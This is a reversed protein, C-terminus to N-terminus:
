IVTAEVNRELTVGAIPALVKCDHLLKEVFALTAKDAAVQAEAMELARKADAYEIDSAQQQHYLGEIRAFNVHQFELNAKSRELNAAAENCRAQYAEEEIEALLEDKEVHQGQEFHLKVIQGSVKTSVQVRHDSVIKGTATLVPATDSERHASVKVVQVAAAPTTTTRWAQIRSGFKDWGIYGGLALVVVILLVVTATRGGRTGAARAGPRQERPISLSRLQDRLEVGDKM